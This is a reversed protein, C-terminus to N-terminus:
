TPSSRADNATRWVSLNSEAPSATGAVTVSLANAKVKPQVGVAALM